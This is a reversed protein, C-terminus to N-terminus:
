HGVTKQDGLTGDDYIATKDLTLDLLKEQDVSIYFSEPVPHEDTYIRFTAV